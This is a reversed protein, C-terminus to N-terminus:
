TRRMDARVREGLITLTVGPFEDRDHSKAQMHFGDKTAYPFEEGDIHLRSIRGPVETVELLHPITVQSGDM